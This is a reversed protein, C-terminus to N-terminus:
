FDVNILVDKIQDSKKNKKSLKIFKLWYLYNFLFKNSVNDFTIILRNFGSYLFDIRYTFTILSMYIFFM